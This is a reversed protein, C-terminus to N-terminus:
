DLRWWSVDDGAGCREPGERMSSFQMKLSPPKHQNNKMEMIIIYVKIINGDLEMLFHEQETSNIRRAGADREQFHLVDCKLTKRPACAM